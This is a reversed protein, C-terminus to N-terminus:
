ASVAGDETAAAPVAALPGEVRVDFVCASEGAARCTRTEVTAQVQMVALLERVISAYFGCLPGAHQERVDCFPSQRLTLEGGKRGVRGDLTATAYSDRVIERAVGTARRVRWWLPAWRSVRRRRPSLDLTWQVAHRGAREVVRTYGGPEQRLFSLVASLAGPAISGRRLEEPRLWAGYFELRTPLLEAIAEHLSAPVLRGIRADRM